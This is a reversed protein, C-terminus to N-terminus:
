RLGKRSLSTARVLIHHIRASICCYNINVQVEMKPHAFKLLAPGNGLVVFIGEIVLLKSSLRRNNCRRQDEM